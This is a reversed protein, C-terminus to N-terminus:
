LDGLEYSKYVGGNRRLSAPKGVNLFPTKRVKGGVGLEFIILSLRDKPALSTIFFDLSTKIVRHKPNAASATVHPPSISIVLILDLPPHILPLLPNSPGSPLHPTVLPVPIPSSPEDNEELTALRHQQGNYAKLTRDMGGISGHSASSTTSHSSPGSLLSDENSYSTTGTNGSLVRVAKSSGGFEELAPTDGPPPQKPAVFRNQQQFMTILTQTHSKWTELSSRERFILIFSDLREDEMDNM